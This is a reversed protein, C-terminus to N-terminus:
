QDGLTILHRIEDVMRESIGSVEALDELRTFPGVDRRYEVIRGAIVPGIGPLAELEAQSATNVNLAEGASYDQGPVEIRQGDYLEEGTDIREAGGLETLGGARAIADNVTSNAPLHYYGPERVEGEVLVLVQDSDAPSGAELVVTPRPERLILIAVLIVLGALGGLVVPPLWAYDKWIDQARRIM